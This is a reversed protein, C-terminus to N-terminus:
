GDPQEGQQSPTMRRYGREYTYSTQEHKTQMKIKSVPNGLKNKTKVINKWKPTSSDTM